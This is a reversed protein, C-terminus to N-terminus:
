NSNLGSGALVNSGLSQMSGGDERCFAIDVVLYIVVWWIESAV